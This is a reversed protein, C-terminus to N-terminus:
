LHYAKHRSVICKCLYEIDVKVINVFHNILYIRKSTPKWHLISAPTPALAPTAKFAGFDADAPIDGRTGIYSKWRIKNGYIVVFHIWHTDIELMM